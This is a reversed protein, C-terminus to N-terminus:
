SRNCQNVNSRVGGAVGTAGPGPGGFGQRGRMSERAGKGGFINLRYIFHLMCYSNVGNYSSVSRGDATLSRSINSQQKLIDYM